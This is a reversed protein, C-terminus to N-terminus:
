VATGTCSAVVDTDPALIVTFTYEGRVGRAPVTLTTTGSVDTTFAQDALRAGDANVTQLLCDTAVPSMDDDTVTLTFSSQNTRAGSSAAITIAM